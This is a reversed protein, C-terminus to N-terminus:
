FKWPLEGEIRLEKFKLYIDIEQWEKELYHNHVAREDRYFTVYYIHYRWSLLVTCLSILLVLSIFKYDRLSDIEVPFVRKIFFTDLAIFIAASTLMLFIVSLIENPIGAFVFRPKPAMSTGHGM